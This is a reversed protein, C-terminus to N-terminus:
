WRFPLGEFFSCFAGKFFILGWPQGFLFTAHRQLCIASQVMVPMCVLIVTSTFYVFTAHLRLFTPNLTHSKTQLSSFCSHQIAIFVYRVICLLRINCTFLIQFISTSNDIPLTLNLFTFIPNQFISTSNHIFLTSNHFDFIPNFFRANIWLLLIEYLAQIKAPIYRRLHGVLQALGQWKFNYAAETPIPEVYCVTLTFRSYEHDTLRM